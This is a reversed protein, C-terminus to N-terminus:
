YITCWYLRTHIGTTPQSRHLRSSVRPLFDINRKDASATREDTRGYRDSEPLEWFTQCREQRRSGKSRATKAGGVLQADLKYIPM